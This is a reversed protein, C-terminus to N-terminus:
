KSKPPRSTLTSSQFHPSLSAAPLSPKLCRQGLCSPVLSGQVSDPSLLPPAATHPAPTPPHHTCNPCTSYEKGPPSLCTSDSRSPPASRLERHGHHRMQSPPILSLILFFVLKRNGQKLRPSHEGKVSFHQRVTLYETPIIPIYQKDM